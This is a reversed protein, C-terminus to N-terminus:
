REPGFEAEQETTLTEPPSEAQKEEQTEQAFAPQVSALALGFVTVSRLATASLLSNKNM